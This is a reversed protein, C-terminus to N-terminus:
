ADPGPEAQTRDMRLQAIYAAAKARAAEKDPGPMTELTPDDIQAVRWALDGQNAFHPHTALLKIIRQAFGRDLGSVAPLSKLLEPNNPDHEIKSLLGGLVRSQLDAM